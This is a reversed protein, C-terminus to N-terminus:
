VTKVHYYKVLRNAMWLIASQIANFSPYGKIDNAMKVIDWYKQSVTWYDHVM